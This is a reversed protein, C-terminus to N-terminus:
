KCKYTKSRGDKLVLFVTSREFINRNGWTSSSLNTLMAKLNLLEFVKKQHNMGTEDDIKIMARYKNKKTM